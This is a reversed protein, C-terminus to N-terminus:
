HRVVNKSYSISVDEGGIIAGTACLFLGPILSAFVSATKM